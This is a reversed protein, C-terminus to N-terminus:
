FKTGPERTLTTNSLAQYMQTLNYDTNLDGITNNIWINSPIYPLGSTHTALDGITIKIGNFQPVTVNSPLYKEIPDSLKILGQNVMDALALTTFTKTISDINFLTNGNVPRNNSESINGFSYVSTGNIGIFGIVIASKSKNVIQDIIFKKIDPSIQQQASVYKINNNNNNNNNDSHEIENFYQPEPMANSKQVSGIVL